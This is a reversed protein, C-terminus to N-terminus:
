TWETVRAAGNTGTWIGKIEADMDPVIELLSESAMQHTFNTSSATGSGFLVYLTDTSDNYIAAGKRRRNHSLLTVSSASANVSSVVVGAM